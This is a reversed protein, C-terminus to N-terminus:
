KEMEGIVKALEDAIVQHGNPNLHGDIYPMVREKNKLFLDHLKITTVSKKNLYEALRNEPYHPNMRQRIGLTEFNSWLEYESPIIIVVFKFKEQAALKVFQDLIKETAKWGTQMHSPQLEPPSYTSGLYQLFDSNSALTKKWSGPNFFTKEKFSPLLPLVRRFFYSNQRLFERLPSIYTISQFGDGPKLYPRFSDQPSCLYAMPLSNNCIDNFPFIELVVYDPHFRLAEKKLLLLEQLNGYDGIGFNLSEWAPRATQLSNEGRHDLLKETLSWYTQALNVQFAEGFSDGMFAIRKTGAAKELLHETDRLGLSNTEITIDRYEGPVDYTYRISKELLWGYNPDYSRNGSEFIPINQKRFYLEAPIFLLFGFFLFSFVALYIKRRIPTGLAIKM